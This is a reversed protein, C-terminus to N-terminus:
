ALEAMVWTKISPNRLPPDLSYYLVSSSYPVYLVKPQALIEPFAAPFRLARLAALFERFDVRKPSFNSFCVPGVHATEDVETPSPLDREDLEGVSLTAIATCRANISQVVSEMWSAVLPADAEALTDQVCALLQLVGGRTSM